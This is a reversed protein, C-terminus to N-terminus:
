EWPSSAPTEATFGKVRERFTELPVEVANMFGKWDTSYASKYATEADAQSSFGFMVKHEDFTGDEKSQNVVYVNAATEDDGIFADLEDGDAGFAGLVYGYDHPMKVSWSGDQASRISGKPNEVGFDFGAFSKSDHTEKPGVIARIGAIRELPSVVTPTLGEIAEARRNTAPAIVATMFKELASILLDVAGDVKDEQNAAPIFPDDEEEDVEDFDVGDVGLGLNGEKANVMRAQSTQLMAENEPVAGIETEADVGDDITSWGSTKDKQLKDRAEDPSVIASGTLKVMDEIKKSNIEAQKESSMSDVPEWNFNLGFGIELSKALRIYHQELAWDFWKEQISELEEHYSVTEFEGTANFGKPSTGLLKTAPTNAQAAVIQYQNMIVSDFDSLSTDFQEMTEEKGLLRTGHNDRYRSALLLRETMAEENAAAADLDVHVAVLRKSMALLPAENATREAAYVREYIRQTLPIGGFIYTPKLIDAPQPGRLIALHSKHYQVGNILWFDPDYFDKSAPNGMTDGTLVPTMWYPDVQSMGRYSGRTVGDPNFPKRYYDPDNSEVLFIVVRIGFVNTFRGMEMLNSKVQLRKDEGEIATKQEPTLVNGQDPIIEWGNRVADNVSQSCAKDILWHQSLIACAQYGIFGQSGYWQMIGPPVGLGGTMSQRTAGCAGYAAGGLAAGAHGMLASDGVLSEDTQGATVVPFDSAQRRFLDAMHDGSETTGWPQLPNGGRMRSSPSLPDGPAEPAAPSPAELGFMIAVIKKLKSM